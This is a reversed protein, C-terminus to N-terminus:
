QFSQTPLPPTVFLFKAQPEFAPEFAAAPDNM